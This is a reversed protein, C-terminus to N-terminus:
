IFNNSLSGIGYVQFHGNLSNYRNGQYHHLISIIRLDKPRHDIKNGVNNDLDLESPKGPASEGRRTAHAGASPGIQSGSSWHSDVLRSALNEGGLISGALGPSAGTTTERGPSLPRHIPFRGDDQPM